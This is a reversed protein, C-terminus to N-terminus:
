PKTEAAKALVVTAENGAFHYAPKFIMKRNTATTFSLTLTGHNIDTPMVTADIHRTRGGKGSTTATGTIEVVKGRVAEAMVADSIVVALTGKENKLFWPFVKIKYDGTYLGNTRGLRGITLTAKGGGVPMSSPDIMLVRNGAASNTSAPAAYADGWGVALLLLLISIRKM